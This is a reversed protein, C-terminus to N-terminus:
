ARGARLAAVPDMDRYARQGYLATALFLLGSMANLGAIWPDSPDSPDAPGLNAVAIGAHILFFMLSVGQVVRIGTRRGWVSAPFLTFTLLLHWGAMHTGMKFAWESGLEAAKQLYLYSAAFGASSGALAQCAHIWASRSPRARLEDERRAPRAGAHVALRPHTGSADLQMTLAVTQGAPVVQVGRELDARTAASAVTVGDVSLRGGRYGFDSEFVARPWGPLPLLFVITNEAGREGM